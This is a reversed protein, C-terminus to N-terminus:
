KLEEVNTEDKFLISMKIDDNFKELHSRFLKFHDFLIKQFKRKFNKKWHNSVNFKLVDNSDVSGISFSNVSENFDVESVTKEFLVNKLNLKIENIKKKLFCTRMIFIRQFQRFRIRVKICVLDNWFQNKYIKVSAKKLNTM